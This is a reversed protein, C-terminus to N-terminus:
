QMCRVCRTHTPDVALRRQEITEGCEFCLGFAGTEIRKLAGEIKKLQLVRRRESEQAIQQAQMADMRSLRGVSAQDLAVPKTASQSTKDIAQLVEAQRLLKQRFAEFDIETM